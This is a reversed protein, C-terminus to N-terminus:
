PWRAPAPRRPLARDPHGRYAGGRPQRHGRLGRAALAGPGLDPHARARGPGGTRGGGRAGAPAGAGHLGPGPGAPWAPAPGRGGAGPRLQRHLAGPVARQVARDRRRRARHERGADAPLPQHGAAAPVGPADAAAAHFAVARHGAPVAPGGRGQACAAGHRPAGATRGHLVRDVTATSVGAARAIDPIRSRIGSEM